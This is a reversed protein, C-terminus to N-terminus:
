RGTTKAPLSSSGKTSNPQNAFHLTITLIVALLGWVLTLWFFLPRLTPHKTARYAALCVASTVSMSVFLCILYLNIGIM